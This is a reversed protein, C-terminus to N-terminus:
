DAPQSSWPFRKETWFRLLKGVMTPHWRFWEGEIHHTKFLWHLRGEDYKTAPMALMAPSAPMATMLGAIRKWPKQSFGIKVKDDVVLVYIYGFTRAGATTAPRRLKRRAGHQSPDPMETNERRSKLDLTHAVAARRAEDFDMWRGDAHKLNFGKAMYRRRLTPGPEWRPRGNNWILYPVKEM